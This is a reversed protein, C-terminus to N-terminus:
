LVNWSVSSDISTVQVQPRRSRLLWKAPANGRMAAQVPIAIRIQGIVAGATNQSAAGLGKKPLAGQLGLPHRNFVPWV